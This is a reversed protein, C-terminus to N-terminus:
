DGRLGVTVCGQFLILAWLMFFFGVSYIDYIYFFGEIFGMMFTVKKGKHKVDDKATPKAPKSKPLFFLLDESM